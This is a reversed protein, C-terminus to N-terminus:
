NHYKRLPLATQGVKNRVTYTETVPAQLIEKRVSGSLEDPDRTTPFSTSTERWAGREIAVVNLGARTLEEAMTSGSWGLGIIVVDAKPRKYNM